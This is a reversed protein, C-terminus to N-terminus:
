KKVFKGAGYCKHCTTSGSYQWEKKYYTNIYIEEKYGQSTSVIRSQPSSSGAYVQKEAYQAITGTGHCETCKVFFQDSSENLKEFNTGTKLTSGDHLKVFGRYEKLMSYENWPNEVVAYKKGNIRVVDGLRLSNVTWITKGGVFKGLSFEGEVVRGDSFLQKGRGHLKNLIFEGEEEKLQSVPSIRKGYGYANFKEDVEGTYISGGRDVYATRAMGNIFQAVAYGNSQWNYTTGENSNFSVAALGHLKGKKFYGFKVYLFDNRIWQGFGEPIGNVAEGTYLGNEFLLNVVSKREPDYELHSFPQLKAQNMRTFDVFPILDPRGEKEVIRLGTLPCSNAPITNNSFIIRNCFFGRHIENTQTLTATGFYLEANVFLGDWINDYADIFIGKNCIGDTFHGVASIYEVSKLSNFMEESFRLSDYPMGKYNDFLSKVFFRTVKGYGNLKGNKFNGEVSYYEDNRNTERQNFKREVLLSGKGNDCDGWICKTKESKIKYTKYVGKDVPLPQNPLFSQANVSLIFFSFLPLLFLTKMKLPQPM